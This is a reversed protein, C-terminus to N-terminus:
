GLGLWPCSLLQVVDHVLSTARGYVRMGRILVYGAVLRINVGLMIAAM